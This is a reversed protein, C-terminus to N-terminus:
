STTKKFFTIVKIFENVLSPIIALGIIKFWQTTQLVTLNFVTNLPTLMLVLTVALAAFIALILLPNKLLSAKFIMSNTRVSLLLFIQSFILTAFAMTIGTISSHNHTEFFGIIYALLTIISVFIGHRFSYLGSLNITIASNNNKYPSLLIDSEAPENYIGCALIFNIIFTAILAQSASIIPIKFITIGMLVALVIGVSYNALFDITRRINNCVSRAEKVSSVITAFNDDEVTMDAAVKAVDTGTIGMACGIDASQLAPADTLNDGTIIVTHGSKKLCDVIRQKDGHSVRAYVSIEDIGELFESDTLKELEDGTLVTQTDDLINMEKATATAALVHDGTIMVTKIGCRRCLKIAQVAEPRPPDFLGLLGLLTLGNEIEESTPNAPLNDLQKIAVAIVRLGNNSMEINAKESEKICGGVCRSFVIEPAGRVIAFIKGDIMNVSSMLKREPSFSIGTLRPSENILM